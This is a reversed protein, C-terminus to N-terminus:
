NQTFNQEGFLKIPSILIAYLIAEYGFPNLM